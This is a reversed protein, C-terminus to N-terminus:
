RIEIREALWEINWEKTVDNILTQKTTIFVNKKLRYM